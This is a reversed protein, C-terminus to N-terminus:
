FVIGGISDHNSRMKLIISSRGAGLLQTGLKKLRHDFITLVEVMIQKSM